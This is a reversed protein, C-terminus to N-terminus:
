AKKNKEWEKYETETMEVACGYGFKKCIYNLFYNTRDQNRNTFRKETVETLKFHQETYDDFKIDYEFQIEEPQQDKGGTMKRQLIDINRKYAIQWDGLVCTRCFPRKAKTTEQEFKIVKGRFAAYATPHGIEIYDKEQVAERLNTPM